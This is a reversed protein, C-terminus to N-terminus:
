FVWRSCMTIAHKEKYGAREADSGGGRGVKSIGPRERRGVGGGQRGAPHNDWGTVFCLASMAERQM